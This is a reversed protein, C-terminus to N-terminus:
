DYKVAKDIEVPNNYKRIIQQMNRVQANLEEITSVQNGGININLDTSHTFNTREFSFPDNYFDMMLKRKQKESVAIAKTGFNSELFDETAVNGPLNQNKVLKYRFNNKDDQIEFILGPLGRFKYPGENFPIEKNFWAIWHRGGFDATAKQLHYGDYEKTDNEIKWPIPDSTTYSYYGFKINIFNENAFSGTKRRIVQGTMDIHRHDLTNFKKNLSDAILLDKGYFKTDNRNIDLVMYFKQHGSEASDMKAQLEYIYRHTQAQFFNVIILFCSLLLARM